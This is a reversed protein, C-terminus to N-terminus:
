FVEIETNIDLGEGGSGRVGFDAQLVYGGMVLKVGALKIQEVGMIVTVM